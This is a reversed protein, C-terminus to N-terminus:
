SFLVMADEERYILGGKETVSIKERVELCFNV